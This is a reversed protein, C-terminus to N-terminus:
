RTDWEFGIRAMDIVNIKNDCSIDYDTVFGNEGSVNNYANRIKTRDSFDIVGDGTVDADRPCRSLDKNYTLTGSSGYFGSVSAGPTLSPAPTSSPSPKTFNRILGHYNIQLIGGDGGLNSSLTTYGGIGTFNANTTNLDALRSAFSRTGRGRRLPTSPLTTAPSRM